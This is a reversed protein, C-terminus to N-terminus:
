DDLREFMSMEVGLVEPRNDEEPALTVGSARTEYLGSQGMKTAIQRWKCGYIKKMAVEIQAPSALKHVDQEELPIGWQFALALRVDQEDEPTWRRRGRRSVLKWKYRGDDSHVKIGANALGFAYLRVSKAWDEMNPLIALLRAVQDATMRSPDLPNVPEIPMVDPENFKVVAMKFAHERLTPCQPAYRCYLCHDGAVFPANPDLTRKAAPLMEETAWKLLEEVTIVQRRIPEGEYAPSRPQCIILEVDVIKENILEDSLMEMIAYGRTQPKQVSVFRYGYKLDIITLRSLHRKYLRCDCTGFIPEQKFFEPDLQELSGRHEVVMEINPNFGYESEEAILDLYKQVGEVMMEDVPIKPGHDGLDVDRDLWEIAEQKQVLCNAAVEHAASGQRAAPTVIDPLGESARVSAGCAMWRDAGSFGLRAHATPHTEHTVGEPPPLLGRFYDKAWDSLQDAM